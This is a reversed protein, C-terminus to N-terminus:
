AARSPAGMHPKDVLEPKQRSVRGNKKRSVPVPSCAGPLSKHPTLGASHSGARCAPQQEKWVAPRIHFQPQRVALALCRSKKHFERIKLYQWYFEVSCTGCSTCKYSMVSKCEPTFSMFFPFLFEDAWM